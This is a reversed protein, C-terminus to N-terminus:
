IETRFGTSVTNKRIREPLIGEHHIVELFLFTDLSVGLDIKSQAGIPIRASYQESNGQNKGTGEFGFAAYLATSYFNGYGWNPLTMWKYDAAISSEGEYVGATLQVSQEGHEGIQVSVKPYENIAVGYQVANTQVSALASKPYFLM